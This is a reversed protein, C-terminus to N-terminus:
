SQIEMSKIYVVPLDEGDSPVWCQEFDGVLDSSNEQVLNGYEALDKAHEIAKDMSTYVGQVNCSYFEDTLEIVLYCTSTSM